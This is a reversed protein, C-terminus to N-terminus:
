SAPSLVVPNSISTEIILREGAVPTYNGVLNRSYRSGDARSRWIYIAAIPTDPQGIDLINSDASQILNALTNIILQQGNASDLNNVYSQAAATAASIASQQQASSATAVFTLTTALSIGILDPQTATGSLPYAAGSDLQTQVMALLSPPVVPSIGYVYCIFTGAQRVFSLEQIGPVELGAALLDSQTAGSRSQLALSIRFRYDADSEADRGGILGYNNTVLLSGYLYDAYAKFSHSQFVGQAANGAAGSQQSLISAVAVTQSAVCTTTSATVVVQGALGAATFIQTGAPITIDQGNNISGFTGRKVYFQFSNDLASSSVDVQQLRPKGWQNGILDLDADSAYPLLNQAIRAFQNAESVAQENGVADGFARAKGGQATNQIGTLQLAALIYAQYQNANNPTQISVSM